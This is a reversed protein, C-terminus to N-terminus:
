VRWRRRWRRRTWRMWPSWYFPTFGAPFISPEPLSWVCWTRITPERSQTNLDRKAHARLVLWIICLIQILNSHEVPSPLCAPLEKFHCKSVARIPMYPLHTLTPWTLAKVATVSGLSSLFFSFFFWHLLFFFFIIYLFWDKVSPDLLHIGSGSWFELHGKFLNFGALDGWYRWHLRKITTCGLQQLLSPPNDSTIAKKQPQTLLQGFSLTKHLSLSVCSTYARRRM